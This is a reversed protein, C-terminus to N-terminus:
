WEYGLSRELYLVDFPRCVAPRQPLDPAGPRGRDDRGDALEGVLALADDDVAPFDALQGLLEVVRDDPDLVRGRGVGVAPRNQDLLGRHGVADEALDAIPPGGGHVDEL